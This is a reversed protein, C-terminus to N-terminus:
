AEARMDHAHMRVQSVVHCYLAQQAEEQDMAKTIEKITDEDCAKLDCTWSQNSHVDVMFMEKQKSEITKVCLDVCWLNGQKDIYEDVKAANYDKSKEDMVPVTEDEMDKMVPLCWKDQGTLIDPAKSCAM